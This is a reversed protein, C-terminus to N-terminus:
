KGDKTFDYKILKEGEGIKAPQGSRSVVQLTYGADTMAKNLVEEPIGANALYHTYLGVCGFIDELGKLHEYRSFKIMVLEEM